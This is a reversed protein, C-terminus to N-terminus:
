FEARLQLLRPEGFVEGQANGTGVEIRNTQIRAASGKRQWTHHIGRRAAGIVGDGIWIQQRAQNRVVQGAAARQELETTIAVNRLQRKVGGVLNRQAAELDVDPQA